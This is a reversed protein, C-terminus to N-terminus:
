KIRYRIIKADASVTDISKIDKIYSPIEENVPYYLERTTGCSLVLVFLVLFPFKM